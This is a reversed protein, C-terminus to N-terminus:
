QLGIVWELTKTHRSFTHNEIQLCRKAIQAGNNSQLTFMYCRFFSNKKWKCSTNWMAYMRLLDRLPWFGNKLIEEFAELISFYFVHNGKGAWFRIPISYLRNLVFTGRRYCAQIVSKQPWTSIALKTILVWNDLDSGVIAIEKAGCSYSNSKPRELMGFKELNRQYLLNLLINENSDGKRGYDVKM